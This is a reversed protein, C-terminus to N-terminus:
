AIIQIGARLAQNSIAYRQLFRDQFSNLTTIVHLVFSQRKGGGTALLRRYLGGSLAQHDRCVFHGCNHCCEFVRAVFGILRAGTIKSALFSPGESM